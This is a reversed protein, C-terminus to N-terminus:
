DRAAAVRVSESCAAGAIVLDAEASAVRLTDRRCQRVDNKGKLDFDPASGCKSSRAGSAATSAKPEPRPGCTSTATSSPSRRTPPRRKHLPLSALTAASLTALIMLKTM